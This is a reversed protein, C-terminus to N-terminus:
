QAAEQLTQFRLQVRPIVAATEDRDYDSHAYIMKQLADSVDTSTLTLNTIVEATISIKKLKM